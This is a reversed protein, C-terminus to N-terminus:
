NLKKVGKGMLDLYFMSGLHRSKLRLSHLAEKKEISM